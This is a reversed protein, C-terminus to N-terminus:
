NQANYDCRLSFEVDRAGSSLVVHLTVPLTKDGTKVHSFNLGIVGRLLFATLLCGVNAHSAGRGIVQQGPGATWKGQLVCVPFEGQRLADKM